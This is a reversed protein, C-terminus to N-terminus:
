PTKARVCQPGEPANFCRMLIFNSDKYQQLWVVDAQKDPAVQLTHTSVGAFNTTVAVSQCAATSLLGLLAAFRYSTRLTIKM